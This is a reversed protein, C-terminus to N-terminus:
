PAVPRYQAPWSRIGWIKGAVKQENRGREARLCIVRATPGPITAGQRDHSHFQEGCGHLANGACPDAVAQGSEDAHTTSKPLTRRECGPIDTQLGASTREVESM